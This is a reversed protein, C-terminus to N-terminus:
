SAAKLLVRELPKPVDIAFFRSASYGYDEGTEDVIRLYGHREAESDPIVRYLKGIELSAQYGKNEICVAFRRKAKSSRKMGRDLLPFKIKMERRGIGHAEYWHVEATRSHGDILRVTAV